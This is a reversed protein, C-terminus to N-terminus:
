GIYTFVGDSNTFTYTEGTPTYTFVIEHVETSRSSGLFGGGILFYYIRVGDDTRDSYVYRSSMFDALSDTESGTGRSTGGWADPDTDNVTVTWNASDGAISDDILIGCGIPSGSHSYTRDAAQESLDILSGSIGCSSSGDDWDYAFAGLKGVRSGVPWDGYHDLAALRPYPYSGTLANPHTHSQNDMTWVLNGNGDNMKAFYSDLTLLGRLKRLPCATGAGGSVSANVGAEKAWYCNTVSMYYASDAFGFTKYGKKVQAVAYCGDVAGNYNGHICFGAATDGYSNGASVTGDSYCGYISVGSQVSACFGAADANSSTVANNAYCSKVTGGRVYSVLGSAAGNGSQVTCNASYCDVTYVGDSEGILGSASAAYSGASGNEAIKANVVECNKVTGQAAGILGAVVGGARVTVGSVGCNTVVAGSYTLAILGAATGGASGSVTGSIVRCNTVSAQATLALAASSDSRNIKVNRLIVNEVSTTSGLVYFLPQTLGSISNEGGDYTFQHGNGDIMGTAADATIDHTQKLYYQPSYSQVKGINELQEATRVQLVPNSELDGLPVNNLSISTGFGPNLYVTRDSFTDFIERLAYGGSWVKFDDVATTWPYLDIGLSRIETKRSLTFNGGWGQNPGSVDETGSPAAVGYGCTGSIMKANAYDLTNILLGRRDYGYFGWSGDTYKEYYCLGYPVNAAAPKIEEPWDGYYPMTVTTGNLTYTLFAFPFVGASLYPNTSGGGEAKFASFERVAVGAEYHNAASTNGSQYLGACDTVSADGSGALPGYASTGDAIVLGYATCGSFVAGDALYGALAGACSDSRVDSTTFYNDKVTLSGSTVAGVAGGAGTEAATVDGSAFSNGIAASGASLTGLIGGADYEASVPLASLSNEVHLSEGSVRGVLGGAMGGSARVTHSAMWAKMASETSQRTLYVRCNSIETRGSLAGALAGAEETGSVTPDVVRLNEVTLPCTCFGILGSYGAGAIKFNKLEYGGGNLVIGSTDGDIKEPAYSRVATNEPMMLGGAIKQSDSLSAFDIDQMQRLTFPADERRDASVDCYAALNHLQRVYGYTATVAGNEASKTEFLSNVKAFTRHTFVTEGNCRLTLSLTLDDGPVLDPYLEAFSKGAAMSDLLLYLNYTGDADTWAHINGTDGLSESGGATLTRSARSTTGGVTHTEGEIQVSASILPDGASNEALKPVTLKVYLDERNIVTCEPEPTDASGGNGASEGGGGYYGIGAAYRVRDNQTSSVSRTNVLSSLMSDVAGDTLEASESYYVDLVDGTLLNLKLVFSGGTTSLLIRTQPFYNQTENSASLLTITTSTVSESSEKQALRDLLGAAKIESTENQASLFIERATEDWKTLKASRWGSVLSPAALAAVIALVAVVVLMEALTFGGDYAKKERGCM